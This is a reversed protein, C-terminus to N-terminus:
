WRFGVDSEDNMGVVNLRSSSELSLCGGAVDWTMDESASVFAAFEMEGLGLLRGQM